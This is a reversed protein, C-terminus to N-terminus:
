NKYKWIYGHATARKGNCVRTINSQNYNLEDRIQSAGLWEIMFNGELDYQLVAKYKSLTQNKIHDKSKKRGLSSNRMKLKTEVSHHHNKRGVIMLNYGHDPHNANKINVWVAETEPLIDRECEQLVSFEFNSEGYKNWARQLYINVHKNKRLLHKHANIRGKLNTAKGIYVKNNTLNTICYIGSKM